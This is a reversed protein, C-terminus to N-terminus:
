EEINLGNPDGNPQSDDLNQHYIKGHCPADAVL